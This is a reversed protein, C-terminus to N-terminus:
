DCSDTKLRRICLPLHAPRVLSSLKHPRPDLAELPMAPNESTEKQFKGSFGVIIVPPSRCHPNEERTGGAGDATTEHRPKDLRPVGYFRYVGLPLLNAM